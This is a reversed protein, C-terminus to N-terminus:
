CDSRVSAERVDESSYKSDRTKNGRKKVKTFHPHADLVAIARKHNVLIEDGESFVVTAAKARGKYRFKEM